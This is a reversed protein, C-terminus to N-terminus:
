RGAPPYYGRVIQKTETEAREGCRQGVKAKRVTVTVRGTVM